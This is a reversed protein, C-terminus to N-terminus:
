NQGAAAASPWWAYPNSSYRPPPPALHSKRRELSASTTQKAPSEPVKRRPFNTSSPEASVPPVCLQTPLRTSNTIEPHFELGPSRLFEPSPTPNRKSGAALVQPTMVAALKRSEARTSVSHKRALAAILSPPSSCGASSHNRGCRPHM